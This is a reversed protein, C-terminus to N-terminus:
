EVLAERAVAELREVPEVLAAVELVDRCFGHGDGGGGVWMLREAGDLGGLPLPEGVVEVASGLVVQDLLDQQREEPLEPISSDGGCAM